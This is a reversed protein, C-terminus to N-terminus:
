AKRDVRIGGREDHALGLSRALVPNKGEALVLYDASVREGSELIATVEGEGAEVAAVAEAHLSAGVAKVQGKARAQFETGSIEPLGLYNYLYAHHM